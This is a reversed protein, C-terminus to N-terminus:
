RPLPALFPHPTDAADRLEPLFSSCSWALGVGAPAVSVANCPLALSLAKGSADWVAPTGEWRAGEAQLSSAVFHSFPFFLKSFESPTHQSTKEVSRVLMKERVAKYLKQEQRIMVVVWVRLQLDM